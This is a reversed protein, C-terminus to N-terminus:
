PFFGGGPHPEEIQDHQWEKPADDPLDADGTLRDFDQRCETITPFQYVYRRLTGSPTQVARRAKILGPVMRKLAIGFATESQKRFVGMRHLRELYHAYLRDCEVEGTGATDGPLTGSRLVDLWWQHEVPLSAVKQELLAGTNPISRLPIDSLDVNLLYHLLNASGGAKLEDEIAQFYTHNQRKADGVDLVAFRREELGAPVLWNNNGTVLLRIYNRVKVPEKGKHEIFQWEGTILDKLKGAAAHDGGWTAEDLQLMLCNALHANFRGVIYRSDAALTFHPGLISGIAQGVITKGSGQAGRLVLSTGLKETPYQIMSAFWGIVWSFLAEDGNCVNEAVHDLFRRCSGRESPEVAFGKWLNYYNAPARGAPDFVLGNFQRRRPSDLWAKSGQIRQTHGDDGKDWLVVPRMWQTFGSISLLRVEAKGEASVGEHLVAPGDGVLVMAYNRNIEEVLQERKSKAKVVATDATETDVIM